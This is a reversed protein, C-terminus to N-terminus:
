TMSGVSATGAGASSTGQAAHRGHSRIWLEAHQQALTRAFELDAQSAGLGLYCGRLAALPAILAWASPWAGAPLHVQGEDEFRGLLIALEDVFATIGRNLQGRFEASRGAEHELILRMSRQSADAWHEVLGTTLRLVFGEITSSEAAAERLVRQASGSGAQEVLTAVLEAKSEFHSYFSSERIGVSKCLVRVSLGRFGERAAMDCAADVLRLRTHGAGRPVPHMDPFASAQTM